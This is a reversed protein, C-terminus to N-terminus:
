QGSPSLAVRFGGHNLRDSPYDRDRDASRCDEADYDWGGGRHVRDSGSSPGTPDTAADAHYVGHWDECWEWVNGHMDYLGVPQAKEPRCHPCIEARRAHCEGQVM